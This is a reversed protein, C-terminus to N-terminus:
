ITIGRDGADPHAIQRTQAAELAGPVSSRMADVM